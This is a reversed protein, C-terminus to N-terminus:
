QRNDEQSAGEKEAAPLPVRVSAGAKLPNGFVPTKGIRYFPQMRISRGDWGTGSTENAHYVVYETGNLELFSCHGPGYATDRAQLVPVPSKAWCNKDLPDNGTLRLLGLCYGDTWSGSASYAVFVAGRNVLAEPGENIPMGEKEWGYQPTSLLHREGELHAPDRMRAIYLNQQGDADAEWGSWIFYMRDDIKLVTGDIAWRDDPTSLKGLMEFPGLPSVSRLVYMRHNENQGNDAAVYIYWADELYVLEPAWYSCSWMTGEPARYVVTEDAGPLAAPSNAARVAVGNGVSRCYYFTGDHEYYWPDCGGELPLTIEEGEAPLLATKVPPLWRFLVTCLLIQVSVFFSLLANM